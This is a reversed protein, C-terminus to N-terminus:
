KAFECGCYKQRYLGLEKSINISNLYGDEKKFDSPLYKLIKDKCINEGIQEILNSNKHPSVSLTSCLFNTFSELKHNYIYRLAIEYAKSLRLEFCKKCRNGRSRPRM